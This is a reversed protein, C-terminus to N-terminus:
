PINQPMGDPNARLVRAAIVGSIEELIKRNKKKSIGDPTESSTMM